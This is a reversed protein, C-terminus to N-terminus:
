ISVCRGLQCRQDRSCQIGCSGCDDVDNLIDKCYKARCCMWYSHSTQVVNECDCELRIRDLSGRVSKEKEDEEIKEEVRTNEEEQNQTSVTQEEETETRVSIKQISSPSPNKSFVPSEQTTEMKREQSAETTALVIPKTKPTQLVSEIKKLQTTPSISPLISQSRRLHTSSSSPPSIASSALSSTLEERNQKIEPVVEEEEKDLLPSSIPSSSSAQNFEDEIEQIQNELELEDRVFEPFSLDDSQICRGDVCANGKCHNNCSGCHNPNIKPDECVGECCIRGFMCRNNCAGCSDLNLRTDICRGNCCLAGTNVSCVRSCEGCNYPDKDLYRVRNDCLKTEAKAIEFLFVCLVLCLFWEGRQVAGRKALYQYKQRDFLKYFLLNSRTSRM